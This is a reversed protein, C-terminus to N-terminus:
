NEANGMYDVRFMCKYLRSDTAEITEEKESPAVGTNIGLSSIRAASKVLLKKSFQNRLFFDGDSSYRCRNGGSLSKRVRCRCCSGVLVRSIGRINEIVEHFNAFFDGQGSGSFANSRLTNTFSRGHPVKEDDAEVDSDPRM